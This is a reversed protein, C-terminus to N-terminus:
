GSQDDALPPTYGSGLPALLSARDGATLALDPDDGAMADAIM